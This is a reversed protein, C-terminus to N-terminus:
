RRMFYMGTGGMVAGALAVWLMADFDREKRQELRAKLAINEDRLSQALARDEITKLITDRITTKKIVDRWKTRTIYLTDNVHLTDTQLVLAELTDTEVLTDTVVLLFTDPRCLGEALLDAKIRDKKEPDYMVRRVPDCSALMCLFALAAILRM